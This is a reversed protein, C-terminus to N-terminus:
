RSFYFQTSDQYFLGVTTPKVARLRFDAPLSSMSKYLKGLWHKDSEKLIKEIDDPKRSRSYSAANANLVNISHMVMKEWDPHIARKDFYVDTLADLTAIATHTSFKFGYYSREFKAQDEPPFVVNSHFMNRKLIALHLPAIPKDPCYSLTYCMGAIVNIQPLKDSAAFLSLASFIQLLENFTFNNLKELVQAFFLSCFSGATSFSHHASVIFCSVWPTRLIGDEYWSTLRSATQELVWADHKNQSLEVQLNAFIAQITYQNPSSYDRTGKKWDRLPDPIIQSLM